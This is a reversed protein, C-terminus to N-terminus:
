KIWDTIELIYTNTISNASVCYRKNLYDFFMDQNMFNFVEGELVEPLSSKDINEEMYTMLDIVSPHYAHSPTEDIMEHYMLKIDISDLFDEQIKDEEQYTM